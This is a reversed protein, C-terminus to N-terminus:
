TSIIAAPAFSWSGTSRGFFNKETIIGFPHVYVPQMYILSDQKNKDKVMVFAKGPSVSKLTLFLKGDVVQGEAIEIIEEDQDATIDLEAVNSINGDLEAELVYRSGVAINYAFCVCLLVAALIIYYRKKM